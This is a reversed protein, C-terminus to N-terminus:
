RQGHANQVGGWQSHRTWWRIALGIALLGIWGVIGNVLRSTGMLWSLSTDPLAFWLKNVRAGYALTAHLGVALYLQGTRLYSFALVGGLLALGILEFATLLDWTLTRLHVVSYLASSVIVAVWKSCALLQQLLFGRFVLEEVMGVLLATPAFGLTVRWLKFTNLTVSVESTGSLLGVGVWLLLAGCGLLVGLGLPRWGERLRSFGYSRLTRGEVRTTLWWLSIVAAISVCRRFVKWWSLDIWPHILSSLVAALLLTSGGFWIIHTWGSRCSREAIAREM